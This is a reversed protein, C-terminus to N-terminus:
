FSVADRVSPSLSDAPVVIVSRADYTSVRARQGTRTASDSAPRM